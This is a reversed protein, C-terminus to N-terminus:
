NALHADLYVLFHETAQQMLAPRVQKWYTRNLLSTRLADRKILLYARIRQYIRTTVVPRNSIQGQTFTAGFAQTLYGRVIESYPIANAALIAESLAMYPSKALHRGVQYALLDAAYDADSAFRTLLEALAAPQYDDSGHQDLYIEIPQATDGIAATYERSDFGRGSIAKSALWLLSDSVASALNGGWAQDSLSAIFHAFDLSQGSICATADLEGAVFEPHDGAVLEWFRNAYASRTYARLSRATDITHRDPQQQEYADIFRLMKALTADTSTPNTAM